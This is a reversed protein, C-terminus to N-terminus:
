VSLRFILKKTSHIFLFLHIYIFLYQLDGHNDDYSISVAVCIWIRSSVSQM